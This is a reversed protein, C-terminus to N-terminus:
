RSTLNHMDREYTLSGQTEVAKTNSESAAEFAGTAREGHLM